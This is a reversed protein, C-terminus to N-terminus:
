LLPAIAETHGPSGACRPKGGHGVRTLSLAFLAPGRSAAADQYSSSATGAPGGVKEREIFGGLHLILNFCIQTKHIQHWSSGM